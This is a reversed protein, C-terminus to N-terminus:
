RPRRTLLAAPNWVLAGAISWWPVVRSAQTINRSRWIAPLGALSDRISRLFVKGRGRLGAMVGYATLVGVHVPVLPWFLMAPMNKVFCWVVNRIGHYRAFDSSGGGAGGAWHFVIADAIQIAKHGRLRLRFGLDVDELYCFFSEDFGGADLFIQRRYLAAAACPSFVEGEPPLAIRPWGYGGRWAMGAAFYCDGAGDLLAHNRQNIQTSGFMSAAPYRKTAMMLQELWDTAPVADPNLLALWISKVQRAALNNAAAFGLNTESVIFEFRTDDQVVVRAASISDDSSANDVIIARFESHTQVLLGRLTAALHAGANFNVIIVTVTPPLESITQDTNLIPSTTAM